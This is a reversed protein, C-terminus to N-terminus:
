QGGTRSALPKLPPLALVPAGPPTLGSPVHVPTLGKLNRARPDTLAILYATIDDIQQQTLVLGNLGGARTALIDNTTPLLTSRLLPDIQS